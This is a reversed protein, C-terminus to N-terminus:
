YQFILLKSALSKVATSSDSRYEDHMIKKRMPFIKAIAPTPLASMGLREQLHM